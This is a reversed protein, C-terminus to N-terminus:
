QCTLTGTVGGTISPQPTSFDIHILDATYPGGNLISRGGIIPSTESFNNGASFSCIGVDDGDSMVWIYCSLLGSGSVGNITVLSSCLLEATIIDTSANGGSAGSPGQPGTAGRPGAAGDKGPLGQPGSGDGDCVPYRVGEDILVVGGAPCESPTAGEMEIDTGQHGGCGAIFLAGFILKKM